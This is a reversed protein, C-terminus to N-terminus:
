SQCVRQTSETDNRSWITNVLQKEIKWGSSMGYRWAVITMLGLVGYILTVLIFPGDYGLFLRTSYLMLYFAIYISLASMGAVFHILFFLILHLFRASIGLLPKQELTGKHIYHRQQMTQVIGVGTIVFICGIIAGCFLSNAYTLLNLGPITAQRDDANSPTLIISFTIAGAFTAV